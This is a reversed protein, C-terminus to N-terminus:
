AWELAICDWMFGRWQTYRTVTFTLTNVGTRLAEQPIGYQVFRWEGSTKGSRYVSPDNALTDKSLSGLLRGNVAVDMAASQSYGAFSLSLVALDVSAARPALDQPELEFEVTWTGLLAQAYFWDSVKSTGVTFTLNALSQEAVGHQYPPGGNRFGLAKKDCDGITFLRKTPDPVAWLQPPVQTTRGAEVVVGDYSVNTYVDGLADGDATAVLGYTGVRVHSLAFRGATDARTTYYYGRGQVLPRRTTDADGLFM